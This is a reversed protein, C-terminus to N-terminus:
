QAKATVRRQLWHRVQGTVPKEVLFHTALGLATTTILGLILMAFAAWGSVKWHEGLRAIPITAFIHTLYISYSANGLLLAVPSKWSWGWRELLLASGVILTALPGYLVAHNIRWAPPFMLVILAMVGVGVTLLKLSFGATLPMRGLGMALIMGAAFELILLNTYFRPLLLTPELVAGMVALVLLIGVVMLNGLERRPSLLGLAFLSYFFMEYNLTWGVFLIPQALGVEAKQFPVFLLSLVLDSWDATTNKFISPVVAAVVFVFMTVIWYIPAVRVFRNLIFHGADPRPQQTTYVMIFGSIVFFVDVGGGGITVGLSNSLLKQLHFVVVLYAALGRLVQINAVM